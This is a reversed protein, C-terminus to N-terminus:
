DADSEPLGAAMAVGDLFGRARETRPYREVLAWFEAGHSPVVLHALEHLLVYDVVWAPMGQLRESLRITRDSPTCSGWRSKQNGVWRVSAPEARGELYLGSLEGARTMLIDDSPKLRQERREIRDIMTTVWREEEAKSLRAPMLIVIKRGDRYAQVSRKRRASRRIEVPPRTPGRLPSPERSSTVPEFYRSRRVYRRCGM